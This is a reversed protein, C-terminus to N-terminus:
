NVGDMLVRLLDAGIGAGFRSGPVDGPHVLGPAPQHRLVDRRDPDALHPGRHLSLAALGPAVGQQSIHVALGGAPRHELASLLADAAVPPDPSVKGVLDGVAAEGGVAGQAGFLSGEDGLHLGTASNEQSQVPILCRARIKLIGVSVRTM